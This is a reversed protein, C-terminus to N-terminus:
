ISLLETSLDMEGLSRAIEDCYIPNMVLAYDPDYEVLFEPSVVEKGTGPLFRGQRYPNIDVVYEIEDTIGIMSLFTICKSGSGWAVTRKGKEHFSGLESKWREIQENCSASFRGVMDEVEGPEEELEPINSSPEDAPLADLLIYQDEFARNLHTVEFRSARFVRSLSGPTFYSCHYYYVDWFAVEDLIRTADPVEFFVVPRRDGITKRVLRVFEGTTHIHELAHRCCVLDGVFESHEESYYDRIFRLNKIGDSDLRGWEFAPDIGVGRNNGMKCILSLFDGKGCGIELIDRGYLDYEEVLRRALGEAFANFTPSFCQQDEYLRSQDVLGPDYASNWIFGCNRCFSAVMDGRPTGLAEDRSDTLGCSHIPIDRAEFFSYTDVLNCNPCSPNPSSM